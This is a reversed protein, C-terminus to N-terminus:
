YNNKWDRLTAFIDVDGSLKNGIYKEAAHKVDPVAYRLFPNMLREDSLM